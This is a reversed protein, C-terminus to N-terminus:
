KHDINCIIITWRNNRFIQLDQNILIWILVWIQQCSRIVISTFIHLGKSKKDRNREKSCQFDVKLWRHKMMDNAMEIYWKAMQFCWYAHEFCIKISIYVCSVPTLNKLVGKKCFVELRSSRITAIFFSVLINYVLSNYLGYRVNADNYFTENLQLVRCLIISVGYVQFEM